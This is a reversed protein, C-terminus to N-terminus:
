TARGPPSAAFLTLEAAATLLAAPPNKEYGIAEMDHDEAAQVIRGSGAFPDLFRGGAVAFPNVMWRAVEPPLEARRGNKIPAATINDLVPSGSQCLPKGRRFAIVSVSAWAWGTTSVKTRSEPKCWTGCRVPDVLGRVSEVMYSMSRWSSACMVLMWRGKALRAAAERLVIAVTASIAHEDGSGGFAYPPDTVILDFKGTEASILDLADGAILRM